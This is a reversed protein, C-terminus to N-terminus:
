ASGVGVVGEQGTSFGGGGEFAGQRRRKRAEFEAVSEGVGRVLGLQDARAMGSGADEGALAGTVDGSRALDSFAQRAQQAEIGQGVLQTAEDYGLPGFGVQRAAASVQASSLRQRVAQLGRDPDMLFAALDGDSMADVADGIEANQNMRVLEERIQERGAGAAETYIAVRQNLENFSVNRAILDQFDDPSDYFGPPFDASRMLQFAQNEYALAEQVSIPPLGNRERELLGRFRQQFEPRDRLAFYLQNEDEFSGDVMLGVAWDYLAGLGAADLTRRILAFDAPTPVYTPAPSGAPAPDVSKPPKRKAGLKDPEPDDISGVPTTIPAGGGSGGPTPADFNSM